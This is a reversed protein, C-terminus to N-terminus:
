QVKLKIVTRSCLYLRIGLKGVTEVVVGCCVHAASLGVSRYAVAHLATGLYFLIFYERQELLSLVLGWAFVHVCNIQDTCPFTTHVHFNLM